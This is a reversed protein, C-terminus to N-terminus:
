GAQLLSIVMRAGSSSLAVNGWSAVTWALNVSTSLSDKVAYSSLTESNGNNLLCGTLPVTFDAFSIVPIAVLSSIKLLPTFTKNFGVVNLFSWIKIEAKLGPPVENYLSASYRDAEFAAAKTFPEPKPCNFAISSLFYM